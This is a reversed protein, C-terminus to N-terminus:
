MSGPRGTKQPTEKVVPREDDNRLKRFRRYQGENFLWVKGAGSKFRGKTQLFCTVPHFLPQDDQSLLDAETRPQLNQRWMTLATDADAAVAANGRIDGLTELRGEQGKRPHVILIVAVNYRVAWLKLQRSIRGQERLEDDAARALLHLNDVVCFKIGFRKYAETLTELVADITVFEDHFQFFLPWNGCEDLYHEVTDPRIDEEEVTAIQQIVFKTLDAPTMELCCVLSPINEYGALNVAVQISATTKGQGPAGCLEVVRGPILKGVVNTMNDWPWPFGELEDTGNELQDLLLASADAFSTVNPIPIAQASEVIRVVGDTGSSLFVDNIDKCDAPMQVIRVRDEGLRKSLEISGDKGASDADYAIVIKSFRELKNVWDTQFSGAGTTGSVVAKFGCQWLIIADFEGECVYVTANNNADAILNEGFLCSAMGAERVYNKEPFTRKKVLVIKDGAPSFHPLVICPMSVGDIATTSCGLNFNVATAEEIGRGKLYDLSGEENRLLKDIQPIIWETDYSKTARTKSTAAQVINGPRPTAKISEPSIDFDACLRSITDAFKGSLGYQKQYFDFIDGDEGTGFDHWRGDFEGGLHVQFSPKTEDRFPSPVKILGTTRNGLSVFKRYFIHFQGSFFELVASKDIGSM